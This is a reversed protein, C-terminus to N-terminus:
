FFKFLKTFDSLQYLPEGTEKNVVLGFMGNGRLIRNWHPDTTDQPFNLIGTQDQVSLDVTGRQAFVYTLNYAPFGNAMPVLKRKPALCLLTQQPYIDDFTSDNVTGVLSKITSELNGPLGPVGNKNFVAPIQMWAYYITASPIIQSGPAPIDKNDLAFKLQNKPLPQAVVDYEVRRGIYRWLENTAGPYASDPLLIIGDEPWTYEVSFESRECIPAFEISNVEIIAGGADDFAQPNLVISLDERAPPGVFQVFDMSTAYLWRKDPHYEPPYRNIVGRNADFYSFGLMAARFDNEEVGDVQLHRTANHGEARISSQDYFSEEYEVNPPNVTTFFVPNTVM